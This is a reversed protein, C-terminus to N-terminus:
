ATPADSFKAPTIRIAQSYVGAMEVPTYGIGRIHAGYKAVYEPLTTNVTPDDLLEAKGELTIPDLGAATNDLALVVHPNRGVNRIKQRDPKSFILVDKGNWLFWVLALHPHGDPRVSGLWIVIDERLRQDIHVDREQTLDLL